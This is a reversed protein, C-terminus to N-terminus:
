QRPLGEAGVRGSAKSILEDHNALHARCHVCSYTRHCNPLYAQFTKSKTMKVMEAPSEESLEPSACPCRCSQRGRQCLFCPKEGNGQGPGKHTQARADRGDKILEYLASVFGNRFEGPREVRIFLESFLCRAEPSAGGFGAAGPM